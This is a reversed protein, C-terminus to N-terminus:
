EGAGPQINDYYMMSKQLERSSYPKTKYLLDYWAIHGCSIVDDELLFVRGGAAEEENHLINRLDLCHISFIPFWFGVGSRGILPNNLPPHEAWREPHHHRAAKGDRRLWGDGVLM